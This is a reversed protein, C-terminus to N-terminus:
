SASAREDTSVAPQDSMRAALEADREEAAHQYIMAARVTSHGARAMLEKLSAGHQAVLTLGAHRLDHFHVAPLGVDARATVWAQQVHQRALPRGSRHTFLRASGLAPGTAALHRSLEDLAQTPLYVIRGKQTKTTTEVPGAALRVIQRHIHLTGRALDVDERRLALLEGLRLHAWLTLIVLTHMDDPM